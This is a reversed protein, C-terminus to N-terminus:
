QNGDRLRQEGASNRGDLDRHARWFRDVADLEEGVAEAVSGNDAHARDQVSGRRAVGDGRAGLEGQGGGEGPAGDGGGAAVALDTHGAREGGGFDEVGPGGARVDDFDEGGGDEAGAVDPVQEGRQRLELKGRGT